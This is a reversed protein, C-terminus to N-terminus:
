WLEYSKKKNNPNFKLDMTDNTSNVEEKENNELHHRVLNKFRHHQRQRNFNTKTDSTAIKMPMTANVVDSSNVTVCNVKHNCINNLTSFVLFLLLFKFLKLLVFRRKQQQQQQTMNPKAAIIHTHRYENSM